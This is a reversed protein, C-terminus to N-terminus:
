RNQPVSVANLRDSIDFNTIAKMHPTKSVGFETGALTYNQSRCSAVCGEVTNNQTGGISVEFVRGHANDSFFSPHDNLWRSLCFFECTVDLMNGHLLYVAKLQVLFHLLPREM